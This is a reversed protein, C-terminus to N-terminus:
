YKFSFYGPLIKLEFKKARILEGDAHAFLEKEAEISVTEVLEHIIFPLHLHKGKEIQPLYRLRKFIPLPKCLVLDLKGDNIAAKPAILFGGGTRAANAINVLLFRGNWKKNGAHIMFHYERFSFIKRLVVWLYGLHDGMRRIMRMSQVVEGDFGIGTVNLFLQGNCLAADVPKPAAALVLAAQETLSIDGFLKWAMDNGTGAKFIAIPIQINRYKNIFYNLTGDGGVIWAERCQDLNDPWDSTYVTFPLKKEELLEELMAAAKMAKGKGALPNIFISIM